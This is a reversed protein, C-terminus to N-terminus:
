VSMTGEAVFACLAGHWPELVFLADGKLSWAALSQTSTTDMVDLGPAATHM